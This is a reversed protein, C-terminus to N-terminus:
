RAVISGQPVAQNFDDYFDYSGASLPGVHVVIVQGPEVVKERNLRFSEFEATKATANTVKIVLPQGAPVTLTQPEFHGEALKIEVVTDGARAPAGTAALILAIAAIALLPKTRLPHRM